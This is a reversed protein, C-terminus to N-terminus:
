SQNKSLLSLSLSRCRKLHHSSQLPIKKTDRRSLPSLIPFVTVTRASLRNKTAATPISKTTERLKLVPIRLTAMNAQTKRTPLCMNKTTPTPLDSTAIATTTATAMTTTSNDRSTAVERKSVVAITTTTAREKTLIAVTTLPSKAM